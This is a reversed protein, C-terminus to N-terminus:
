RRRFARRTGYYVASVATTMLTPTTACLARENWIRQMMGSRVRNLEETTAPALARGGNRLRVFFECGSTASISEIELTLLGLHRCETLLLELSAPTMVTCHSDVYASDAQGAQWTAYGERLDGTVLVTGPLKKPGWATVPARATQLASMTAHHDFIQRPTPRSRDERYAELWDGIVTHPRFYDFCARGDPVAMTVLGGPKLIRECGQLFKIPNPLHEFNHSSVLYDFRGHLEPPVLDTIETASGVFDVEELLAHSAVPIAPDAIARELLVARDFVDLIRTNYGDKKAVVPAFWPAIELGMQAKDIGALLKDIRDM